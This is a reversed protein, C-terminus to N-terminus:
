HWNFHFAESQSLDPQLNQQAFLGNKFSTLGGSIKINVAVQSGQVSTVEFSAVSLLNELVKNLQTLQALSNIGKIYITQSFKEGQNELVSYQSAYYDAIRSVMASVLSVKKGTIKDAVVVKNHKYRPASKVLQWSLSWMEPNVQKLNAVVFNDADYRKSAAAIADYFRGSVDSISLALNDELDMLPLQLSIGRSHQQNYFVSAIESNATNTFLNDSVLKRVGGEDIVLWLLTTPRTDGWVPQQMDQLAQNIKRKDFVATFYRINASTQYGYQSLLSDTKQLLLKSESMKEIEANGSVKVLVQKLALVKLEDESQGMVAINGQYPNDFQGASVFRTFVLLLIFLYRVLSIFRM